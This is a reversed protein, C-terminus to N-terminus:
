ICTWMMEQDEEILRNVVSEVQNKERDAEEMQARLMMEQKENIQDQIRQKNRLREIAREHEKQREEAEQIEKRRLMAMDVRADQEVEQLTKLQTEALQAAREKNLYANRIKEQLQKIEDSQSCIREVEVKKRDGDLKMRAMERALREEMEVYKPDSKKGMSTGSLMM